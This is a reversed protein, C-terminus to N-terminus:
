KSFLRNESQLKKFYDLKKQVGKSLIMAIEKGITGDKYGKKLYYIQFYKWKPGFWRKALPPLVGKDIWQKAALFAYEDTKDLFHQRSRFSYHEVLGKLKIKKLNSGFILKEHVAENNWSANKRHYLRPVWDPHWTCNKIWQGEYNIIRNVYYIENNRLSLNQISRQLDKDLVEDADLSLIWDSKAALVAENKTAGYGNWEKSIVTAGAKESVVITDDQSGTDVVIVEDSVKLASEITNVIRDAENKAIIVTSLKM